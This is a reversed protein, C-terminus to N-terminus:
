GTLLSPGDIPGTVRAIRRWPSRALALARALVLTKGLGPAALLTAAREAAEIAHVLRAEAEAHAPTSVYPVDRESFPDRALNWHRMWMPGTWRSGPALLPATDTDGERRDGVM